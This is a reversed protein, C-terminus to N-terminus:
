PINSLFCPHEFSTDKPADTYSFLISLSIPCNFVALRSLRSWDDSAGSICGSKDYGHVHDEVM